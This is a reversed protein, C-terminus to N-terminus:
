RNSSAILVRDKDALDKKIDVGGYEKRSFLMRTQEARNEDIELFLYGNPQLLNYAINSFRKYCLLGEKEAVLAIVPEAHVDRSAADYERKSLYPPNSILVHFAHQFEGPPPTM